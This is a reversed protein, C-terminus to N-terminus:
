QKRRIGSDCGDSYGDIGSELVILLWRWWHVSSDIIVADVMTGVGTLKVARGEVVNWRKLIGM